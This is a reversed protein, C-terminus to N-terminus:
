VGSAFCTQRKLPPEPLTTNLEHCHQQQERSVRLTMQKSVDLSGACATLILSFTAARRLWVKKDSWIFYM